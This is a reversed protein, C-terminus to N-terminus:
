RTPSKVDGALTATLSSWIANGTLVVFDKALEHCIFPTAKVPKGNDQMQYFTASQRLRRDGRERNAASPRPLWSKGANIKITGCRTM